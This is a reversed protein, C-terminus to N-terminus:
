LPTMSERLSKFFVDSELEAQTMIKLDIRQDGISPNKKLENLIKYENADLSPDDTPNVTVVLDIDGGKLKVNTRSGYLYVEVLRSGLCRQLTERIASRQPQTLRL